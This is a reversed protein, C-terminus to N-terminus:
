NIKVIIESELIEKIDINFYEGEMDELIVYVTKNSDILVDSVSGLFAEIDSNGKFDVSVDIDMSSALVIQGDKYLIFNEDKYESDIFCRLLMQECYPATGVESVLCIENDKDKKAMGILAILYSNNM